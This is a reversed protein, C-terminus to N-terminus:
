RLRRLSVCRGPKAVTLIMLVCGLCHSLSDYLRIMATMFCHDTSVLTGELQRRQKRQRLEYGIKLSLLTFLIAIAADVSARHLLGSADRLASSKEM